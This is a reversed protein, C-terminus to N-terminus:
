FEYSLILAGIFNNPSGADDVIPSDAAEPLMRLYQLRGGISIHETLDYETEWAISLSRLGFDADYTSLGSRASQNADIGYFAEMYDKDGIVLQAVLKGWPDEASPLKVDGTIESIIGGHGSAVEKRTEWSLSYAKEKYKVFAGLGVGASVSGVGKIDKDDDDSRGKEYKAVAGFRLGNTQIQVKLGSDTLVITDRWAIRAKPGVFFSYKDSGEYKPSYGGIVGLKIEWDEDEKESSKEQAESSTEEAFGTKAPALYFVAAILVFAGLRLLGQASGNSWPWYQAIM